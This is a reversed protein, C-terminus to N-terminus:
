SALQSDDVGLFSLLALRALKAKTLGRREAEATVDIEVPERFTVMKETTTKPKRM